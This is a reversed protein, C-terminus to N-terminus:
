CAVACSLSVTVVATVSMRLRRRRDTVISKTSSLSGYLLARDVSSPTSLQQLERSNVACSNQGAIATAFVYVYASEAQPPLVRASDSPHHAVNRRSSFGSHSRGIHIHRLAM